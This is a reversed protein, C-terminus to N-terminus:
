KSRQMRRTTEAAVNTSGLADLIDEDTRSPGLHESIAIVVSASEVWDMACLAESVHQLYWRDEAQTRYVRRRRFKAIQELLPERFRSPYYAMGFYDGCIQRRVNDLWELLSFRSDAVTRADLYQAYYIVPSAHAREILSRCLAEIARHDAQSWDDSGYSGVEHEVRRSLLEECAAEADRAGEGVITLM